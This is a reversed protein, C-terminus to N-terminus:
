AGTGPGGADGGHPSTASRGPRDDRFRAPAAATRRPVVALADLRGAFTVDDQFGLGVLTRAHGSAALLAQIGKPSSALEAAMIAADTPVSNPLRRMVERIISGAGLVDDLSPRGDTGACIVTISETALEVARGAVAGANVVAGLLLERAEAAAEVAKSGNSTCLTAARGVLDRSGHELPSNGGDFGPMPLGGREGLLLSGVAAAHEQAAEVEAVVALEDLGLSFLAAATTTMRLVDVVIAVDEERAPPVFALSIRM